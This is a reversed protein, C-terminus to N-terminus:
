PELQLQWAEVEERLQELDAETPRVGLRPRQAVGRAGYLRWWGVLGAGQLGTSDTVFEFAYNWGCGGELCQKPLVRWNITMTDGEGSVSTNACDLSVYSTSLTKAQGPRCYGGGLLLLLNAPQYYAAALGGSAIPPTRDLFFFALSIDDYEYVDGRGLWVLQDSGDHLSMQIASSQIM